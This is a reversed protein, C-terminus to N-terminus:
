VLQMKPNASKKKNLQKALSRTERLVRRIGERGMQQHAFLMLEEVEYSLHQHQDRKEAKTMGAGGM